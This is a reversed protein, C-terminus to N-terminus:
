THTTEEWPLLESVDGIQVRRWETREDVLRLGHYTQIVWQQYLVLDHAQMMSRPFWKVLGSTAENTSVIESM